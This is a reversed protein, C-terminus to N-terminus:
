KLMREAIRQLEVESIRRKKIITEEPTAAKVTEQTEATTEVKEPESIERLAETDMEPVLMSITPTMPHPTKGATKEPETKQVVEPKAEPTVEGETVITSKLLDTIENIAKGRLLGRAEDIADKSKQLIGILSHVPASGTGIVLGTILMDVWALQQPISINLLAFMQIKGVVALVVGLALGLSLARARKWSTYLDSSLYESLRDKADALKKELKELTVNSSGNEVLDKHAKVLIDQAWKAYDSGLKSIKSLSLISGEYYEFIMEIVREIAAAAAVLPVLLSAIEGSTSEDTNSEQAFVIDTVVLSLFLVILTVIIQKKM